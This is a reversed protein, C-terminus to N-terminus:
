TVLSNPLSPRAINGDWGSEKFFQYSNFNGSSPCCVPAESNVEEHLRYKM